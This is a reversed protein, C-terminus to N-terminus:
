CLQCCVAVAVVDDGSGAVACCLVVCCGLCVVIACSRIGRWFVGLWGNCAAYTVKFILAVAGVFLQLYAIEALTADPVLSVVCCVIILSVLGEVISFRAEFHESGRHHFLTTFTRGFLQLFHHYVIVATFDAAVSATNDSGTLWLMVDEMYIRWLFLIPISVITTLVMGIQAYQGALFWNGSSLSHSCLTSESDAIAGVLDDSFGILLLVLVYAVMSDTGINRGIFAATILNSLSESIAGLTLPFSISMIRRMETDPESLFILGDLAAGLSKRRWMANAGCCVTVEEYEHEFSNIRGPDDADAADNPSIDDVLSPLLSPESFSSLSNGRSPTPRRRNPGNTPRRSSDESDDEDLVSSAVDSMGRSSSNKSHQRSGTYSPRRGNRSTLSRTESRYQRQQQDEFRKREKAIARHMTDFRGIPRRKRWRRGHVDWIMTRPKQQGPRTQYLRSTTAASQTQSQGGSATSRAPMGILPSERQSGSIASMFDPDDDPYATSALQEHHTTWHNLGTWIM